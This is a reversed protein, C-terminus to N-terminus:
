TLAYNDLMHNVTLVDNFMLVDIISLWPVFSTKFQTYQIYEPKIFSLRIGRAEFYPKSYLEIGGAANIYSRAKELHCIAILREARDLGRTEPYTISSYKFITRLSLYESIAVVSHSALEAVTIFNGQLVKEIVPYVQSFFPAKSYSHKIKLLLSKFQKDEINVEVEKILKNQSAKKLPVTIYHSNNNLLIQNRNVWGRNIFNVDDYFVFLDAKKVLQFYGIYPFFYPQM